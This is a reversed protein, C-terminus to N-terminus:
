KNKSKEILQSDVGRKKLEQYLSRALLDGGLAALSWGRYEPVNDKLTQILEKINGVKKNDWNLVTSSM